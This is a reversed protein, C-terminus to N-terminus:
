LVICDSEVWAKAEPTAGIGAPVWAWCLIALPRTLGPVMSGVSSAFAFFAAVSTVLLEVFTICLGMGGWVGIWITDSRFGAGLM